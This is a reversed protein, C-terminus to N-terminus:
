YLTKGFQSIYGDEMTKLVGPFLRSKCRAIVYDMVAKVAKVPGIGLLANKLRIPYYFFKRDFYIRTLRPVNIIEGELLKLMWRNVMNSKSYWRHPGTDFSFKGVKITRALGGVGDWKEIVTVKRGSRSLEYAAALGALGAGLIITNPSKEKNNM